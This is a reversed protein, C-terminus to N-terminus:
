MKMVRKSWSVGKTPWQDMVTERSSMGANKSSSVMNTASDELNRQSFNRPFFYCCKKQHGLNKLIHIWPFDELDKWEGVTKAFLEELRWLHGKIKWQNIWKPPWAGVTMLEKQLMFPPKSLHPYGLLQITQIWSCWILISSKPTGGMVWAVEM